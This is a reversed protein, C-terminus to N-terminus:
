QFRHLGEEHFVVVRQKAQKKGPKQLTEHRRSQWDQDPVISIRKLTELNRSFLAALPHNQDILLQVAAEQINEHSKNGWGFAPGATALSLIILYGSLRMLSPIPRRLASKVSGTAECPM